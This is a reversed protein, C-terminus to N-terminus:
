KLINRVRNQESKNNQLNQALYIFDNRSESINYFEGNLFVQMECNRFLENKGFKYTFSSNRGTKRTTINKSIESKTINANKM